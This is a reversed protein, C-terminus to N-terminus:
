LWSMCLYEERVCEIAYTALMGFDYFRNLSIGVLNIWQKKKRQAISSSTSSSEDSRAYKIEIFVCIAKSMIAAHYQISTSNEFRKKKEWKEFRFLTSNTKRKCVPTYAASRNECRQIHVYVFWLFIGYLEMRNNQRDMTQTNSKHTNGEIWKYISPVSNLWVVCQFSNLLFFFM